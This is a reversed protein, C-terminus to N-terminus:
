RGVDGRLTDDSRASRELPANPVFEDDAVLEADDTCHSCQTVDDDFDFCCDDIDGGCFCLQGCEPCSHAM